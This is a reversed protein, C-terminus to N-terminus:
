DIHQVGFLSTQTATVPPKHSCVVIHYSGTQCVYDVSRFHLLAEEKLENPQYGKQFTQGTVTNGTADKVKRVTKTLVGDLYPEGVIGRDKYSRVAIYAKGDKDDTARAIQQWVIQRNLPPLVNLVYNSIVVKYNCGLIQSANATGVDLEAYAAAISKFYLCDPIAKGKGFHLLSQKFGNDILNKKILYKLPATLDKRGIATTSAIVFNNTIEDGFNDQYGNLDNTQKVINM